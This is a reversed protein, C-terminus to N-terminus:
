LRYREIIIRDLAKTLLERSYNMSFIENTNDGNVITKKRKKMYDGLFQVQCDEIIDECSPELYNLDKRHQHKPNIALIDMYKPLKVKASDSGTSDLPEALSEQSGSSSKSFYSGM